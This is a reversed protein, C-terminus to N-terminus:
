TKWENNLYKPGHIRHLVKREWIAPSNKVKKTLTWLEASYIVCPKIVVEVLSCTQIDLLSYDEDEV